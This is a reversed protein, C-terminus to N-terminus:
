KIEKSWRLPTVTSKVYNINIFRQSPKSSMNFKNFYVTVKLPIYRTKSM